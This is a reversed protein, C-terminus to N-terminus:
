IVREVSSAHLVDEYVKLVRNANTRYDFCREATERGGRILRQRLSNDTILRIVGEAMARVDRNPVLLCNKENVAVELMGGADFAVVPVGCAMAEFLIRGFNDYASCCLVVDTKQMVTAVDSYGGAFHVANDLELTQRKNCLCEYYSRDHAGPEPVPGYIVFEVDSCRRLTERAVELFYEHGKYEVIRGFIGVNSKDRGKRISRASSRELSQVDVGNYIVSANKSKLLGSNVYYDRVYECIAIFCDVHRFLWRTERWSPETGRLHCVCPRDTLKAALIAPANSTVENNGHVVDIGYRLIIGVLRVTTSIFYYWWLLTQRVRGLSEPRKPPWVRSAPLVITTEPLERLVEEPLDGVVYAQVRDGLGCILNLLSRRSGGM